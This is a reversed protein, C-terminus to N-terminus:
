HVLASERRILDEYLDMVRATQIDVGFPHAANRLRERRAPDPSSPMTALAHALQRADGSVFTADAGLVDRAQPTDVAIVPCGAALAEALVLGQTESTSAFVFADASAYVDPLRERPFAGAFFVRHAVGLEEARLRGIPEIERLVRGDSLLTAGRYGIITM